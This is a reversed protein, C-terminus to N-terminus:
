ERSEKNLIAVTRTPPIGRELWWGNHGFQFGGRAESSLGVAQFAPLLDSV